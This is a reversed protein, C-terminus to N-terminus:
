KAIAKSLLRALEVKEEETLLSLQQSELEQLPKYASEVLQVGIETLRSRVVRRNITDRERILWGKDALRDLLRTVDPVRTYLRQGIEKSPLGKHNNNIGDKVYIVRLANYQLVTMGWISLLENAESLTKDSLKVANMFIDTEIKVEGVLMSRKRNNSM